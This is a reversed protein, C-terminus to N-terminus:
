TIATQLYSALREKLFYNWGALCSERSFEPIEIPFSDLGENILTVKTRDGTEELKFTVMGEGPYELYKWSYAISQGPVVSIVKWLHTFSRGKSEVVFQTEFGVQPKFEPIQPFYWQIMETQDTIARWANPVTVPVEAEVVIPDKRNAM